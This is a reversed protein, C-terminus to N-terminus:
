AAAKDAAEAYAEPKNAGLAATKNDFVLVPVGEIGMAACSQHSNMVVDVDDNTELGARVQEADLGASAAIAVLTERDALNRGEVFYAAYIADVAAEGVDHGFAWLLVRHADISNPRIRQAALNIPAGIAAAAEELARDKQQIIEADGFKEAYYAMRDVGAQPLDPELLFPRWTVAFSIQPRLGMTKKFSTWGLYCWPCVIDAVVDVHMERRPM